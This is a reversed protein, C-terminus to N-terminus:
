CYGISIKVWALCIRKRIWSSRIHSRQSLGLQIAVGRIYEMDYSGATKKAAAEPDKGYEAAYGEPVDINMKGYCETNHSSDGNMESISGLSEDIDFSVTPISEQVFQISRLLM